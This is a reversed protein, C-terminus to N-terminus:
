SLTLTGREAMRDFLTDQDVRAMVVVWDVAWDVADGQATDRM